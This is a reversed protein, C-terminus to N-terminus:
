QFDFRIGVRSRFASMCMFFDSLYQCPEILSCLGVMIFEIVADSHTSGVDCYSKWREREVFGLQNLMGKKIIKKKLNFFFYYQHSLFLSCSPFTLPSFPTAKLVKFFSSLITTTCKVDFVVLGSFFLVLAMLPLLLGMFVSINETERVEFQMVSNFLLRERNQNQTCHILKQLCAIQM